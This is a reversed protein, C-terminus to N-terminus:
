PLQNILFEIQNDGMVAKIESESLGEDLLAQTLQILNASDFAVTTSGDYDSGLAVHEVGLLEIAYAISHAVGGPTIDCVADWFGIGILGGKAAIRQFQEDTLNRPSDCTGKLGTHSVIVPNPNIALVDEVTAPSSHAVDIIFGMTVAQKVAAKGLATLGEGTEGHLSGGILNDFFHQLGLIRYGADWLVQLNELKGEMPHLGETLLITAVQGQQWNGMFNSLESSTKVVFLDDSQESFGHLKEAQYLARQLLSNWTNIPWLQAIALSTINDSTETKNHEYNQGRPSKTVASMVQLKVNGEQLRPLDVHGRKSRQLFNRKWLMTDSHLDAINLQLHLEKAQESLPKYHGQDFQNLSREIMGPVLWFVLVVIVVIGTFLTKKM